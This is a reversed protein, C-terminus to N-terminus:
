VVTDLVPQSYTAFQLIYNVSLIKQKLTSWPHGTHRDDDTTHTSRMENCLRVTMWGCHPIQSKVSMCFLRDSINDKWFCAGYLHTTKSWNWWQATNWNCSILTGATCLSGIVAYHRQKPKLDLMVVYFIWCGFCCAAHNSFLDDTNNMLVKVPFVFVAHTFNSWITLSIAVSATPVVDRLECAKFWLHNFESQLVLLTWDVAFRDPPHLCFQLRSQSIFLTCVCPSALLCSASQAMYEYAKPHPKTAFALWTNTMYDSAFSYWMLFFLLKSFGTNKAPSSLRWRSSGAAMCNM